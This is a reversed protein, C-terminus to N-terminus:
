SHFFVIRSRIIRTKDPIVNICDELNSDSAVIDQCVVLGSRIDIYSDVKRDMQSELVSTLRLCTSTSNGFAIDFPGDVYETVSEEGTRDVLFYMDKGTYIEELNIRLACTLLVDDIRREMGPVLSEVMILKMVSESDFVSVWHREEAICEGNEFVHWDTEVTERNRFYFPGKSKGEWRRVLLGTDSRYEGATVTIGTKAPDLTAPFCNLNVPGPRIASTKRIIDPLIHPLDM